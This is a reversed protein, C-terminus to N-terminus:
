CRFGDYVNGDVYDTIKAVNGYLGSGVWEYQKPDIRFNTRWYEGAQNAHQM